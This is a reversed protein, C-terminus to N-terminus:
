RRPTTARRRSTPRPRSSRRAAADEEIEEYRESPPTTPPRPRTTTRVPLRDHEIGPSSTARRSSARGGRLRTTSRADAARRGQPQGADPQDPHRLGEVAAGGGGDVGREDTSRAADDDAAIAKDAKAPSATPATEGDAIPGVRYARYGFAATTLLLVFRSSGRCGHRGRRPSAPRRPRQWACRASATASPPAPPIKPNMAAETPRPRQTPGNPVPHPTPSASPSSSLFSTCACCSCRRATTRTRTPWAHIALGHLVGPRAHRPHASSVAPKGKAKPMEKLLDNTMHVRWIEYMLPNYTFDFLYFIVRSGAGVTFNSVTCITSFILLLWGVNGLGTHQLGGTMFKLAGITLIIIFAFRDPTVTLGLELVPAFDTTKYEFCQLFLM